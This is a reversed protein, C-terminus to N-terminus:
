GDIVQDLLGPRFGIGLGLGRQPLLCVDLDELIQRGVRQMILILDIGARLTDVVAVLQDGAQGEVRLDRLQRGDGTLASGGLSTIQARLRCDLTLPVSM